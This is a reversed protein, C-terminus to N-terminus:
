MSISGKRFEGRGLHANVLVPQGSAALRKAEALVEPIEEGRRLELGRGGYGRAAEHYATPRLATGVDSGLMPVQERAIQTWSADNGVVAIVPARHRVFSDFEALSYAASGDGWLLWVEAQPRCLRAGL